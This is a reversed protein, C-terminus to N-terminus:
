ADPFEREIARFDVPFASNRSGSGLLGIELRASVARKAFNQLSARSRFRTTMRALAHYVYAYLSINYKGEGFALPPTAHGSALVMQSREITCREHSENIRILGARGGVFGYCYDDREYHVGVRLPHRGKM